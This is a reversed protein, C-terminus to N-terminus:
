KLAFFHVLISGIILNIINLCILNIFTLIFIELAIPHCLISFSLLIRVILFKLFISISYMCALIILRIILKSM